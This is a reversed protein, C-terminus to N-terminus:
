GRSRAIAGGIAAGIFLGVDALLVVVAVAFGALLGVVPLNFLALLAWM